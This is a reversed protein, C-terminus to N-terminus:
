AIIDNLPVGEHLAALASDVGISKGAEIYVDAPCPEEPDLVVAGNCILDNDLDAYELLVSTWCNIASMITAANTYDDFMEKNGCFVANLLLDHDNEFIDVIDYYGHIAGLTTTLFVSITFNAEKEDLYRNSM